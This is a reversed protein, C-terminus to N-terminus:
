STFTTSLPPRVQTTCLTSSFPLPFYAKESSSLSSFSQSFYREAIFSPLWDICARRAAAAAMIRTEPAASARSSNTVLSFPLETVIMSPSVSLTVAVTGTPLRGRPMTM